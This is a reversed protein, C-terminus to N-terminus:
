SHYPGIASLIEIACEIGKTLLLPTAEKARKWVTDERMAKIFEHGKPTIGNFVYQSAAIRGDAVTALGKGVLYKAAEYIEEYSYDEMQHRIHKMKIPVVKGKERYRMNEELYLLLSRVTDENLEAVLDGRKEESLRRMFILM